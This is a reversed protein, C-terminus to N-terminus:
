GGKHSGGGPAPTPNKPSTETTTSVRPDNRSAFRESGTWLMVVIFLLAFAVVALGWISNREPPKQHTGPMNSM